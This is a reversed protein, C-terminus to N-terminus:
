SSVQAHEEGTHEQIKIDIFFPMLFLLMITSNIAVFFVMSLIYVAMLFSVPNHTREKYLTKTSLLFGGLLISVGFLGYEIAIDLIFNHTYNVLEPNLFYPAIFQPLMKPGVGLFPHELFLNFGNVILLKRWLDSNWRTQYQDAFVLDFPSIQVSELLSPVDFWYLASFLFVFLGSFLLSFFLNIKIENYPNKPQCLLYHAILMMIFGFLAKREESMFLMVLAVCLFLRSFRIHKRMLFLLVCSFGFLYKTNELQKFDPLDGQLLHWTATYLAGAFIYQALLSLFRFSALYRAQHLLSLFSAISLWQVMETFIKKIPADNIAGSLAIYAIFVLIFGSAKLTSQCLRGRALLLLLFALSMLGILDGLHWQIGSFHVRVPIFFLLFSFAAIHELSRNM